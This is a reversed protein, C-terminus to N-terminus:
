ILLTQWWEVKTVRCRGDSGACVRSSSLATVVTARSREQYKANVLLARSSGAAMTMNTMTTDTAADIPRQQQARV